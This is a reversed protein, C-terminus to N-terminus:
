RVHIKLSKTSYLTIFSDKRLLIVTPISDKREVHVTLHM